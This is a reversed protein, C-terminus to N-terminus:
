TGYRAIPQKATSLDGAADSRGFQLCLRFFLYDHAWSSQGDPDNYGLPNNRVYSYLNLTQPDILDAHYQSRRRRGTRVRGGGRRLRSIGRGLAIWGLRPM